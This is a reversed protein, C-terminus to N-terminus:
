VRLYNRIASLSGVTGVIVGIAAFVVLIPISVVAFPITSIFSIGSVTAIRSVVFSYVGWQAVFALLSGLLGLILGEVLFPKQIFSNTAGVMKMVAIEERRAVTTLRITNSMIFLSIVFLVLVLVMSVMTIIGQVKAFGEAIELHSNVKVIGDIEYIANSTEVMKSLDQLYVVYRHRLVSAPLEDLLLASGGYDEIFSAMAQENTIFTVSRVNPENEIRSKIALADAETFRDDVFAVLQNEAELDDIISDVNLTLLTFCGMILLCAVIVFVSAFSM